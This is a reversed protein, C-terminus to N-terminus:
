QVVASFLLQYYSCILYMSLPQGIKILGILTLNFSVFTCFNKYVDLILLRECCTKKKYQYLYKYSLTPYLIKTNKPPKSFDFLQWKKRKCRDKWVLDIQKSLHIPIKKKWVRCEKSYGAFWLHDSTIQTKPSKVQVTMMADSHLQRPLGSPACSSLPLPSTSASPVSRPNSPSGSPTHLGSM